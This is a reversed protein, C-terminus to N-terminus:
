TSSLHDHGPPPDVRAGSITLQVRGGDDPVAALVRGISTLPGMGSESALVDLGAPGTVLLEYEEGSALADGVSAGRACPLRDGDISLALGSAIALHQADRGLGDSIDIAASAGHAALWQGLALRALPRAFRARDDLMPPAGSLWATLARGPGGLTGSV